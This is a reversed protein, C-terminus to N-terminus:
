VIGVNDMRRVTMDGLIRARRPTPLLLVAQPSLGIRAGRSPGVLELAQTVVSPLLVIMVLRSIPLFYTAIHLSPLNSSHMLARKAGSATLTSAAAGGPCSRVALPTSAM